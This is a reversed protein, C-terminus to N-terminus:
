STHKSNVPAPELTETLYGMMDKSNIIKTTAIIYDTTAGEQQALFRLAAIESYTCGGLFYVLTVKTPGDYHSGGVGSGGVSKKLLAPPVYQKEEFTPGPLNKLTEELGRWGSQRELYQALRVSLPAYGSHVYAIDNPNQEKVDDVVLKLSKRLTSYNTLCGGRSGSLRLMGMNELNALTLLHEFGYTHAIERRYYDLLKQKFGNNVLCQLCILRLVKALPEKVGICREIYPHARDTDIGNFFEQEVKLSERFDESDTTEKIVETISTHLALATKAATLHPLKHVFEKMEAVTKGSRHEEYETTIRKAERSLVTAVASFNMDRIEAFLSEASNLVVKKVKPKSAEGGGSQKPKMDEKAPFKDPPLQCNTNEIKFNEDILGALSHISIFLRPTPVTRFPINHECLRSPSM